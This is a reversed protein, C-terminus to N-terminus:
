PWIPNLMWDIMPKINSHDLTGVADFLNFHWGKGKAYGPNWVNLIFMAALKEGSSWVGIMAYFNDSDFDKTFWNPGLKRSLVPITHILNCILFEAMPLDHVTCIAKIVDCREVTPERGRDRCRKTAYQESVRIVAENIHKAHERLATAAGMSAAIEWKGDKM